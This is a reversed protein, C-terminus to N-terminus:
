RIGVLSAVSFCITLVIYMGGWSDWSIALFKRVNIERIFDLTNIYKSHTPFYCFM